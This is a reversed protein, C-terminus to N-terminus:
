IIHDFVAPGHCDDGAAGALTMLQTYLQFTCQYHLPPSPPVRALQRGSFGNARYQAFGTKDGDLREFRTQRSDGRSAANAWGIEHQGQRQGEHWGTRSVGCSVAGGAAGAAPSPNPAQPM